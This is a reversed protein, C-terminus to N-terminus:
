EEQKKRFSKRFHFMGIIGAIFGCICFFGFHMGFDETFKNYGQRSIKDLIDLGILFLLIFLLLFM